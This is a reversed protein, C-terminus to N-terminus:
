SFAFSREPSFVQMFEVVEADDAYFIGHHKPFHPIGFRETYAQTIQKQHQLGRGDLRVYFPSGQNRLM